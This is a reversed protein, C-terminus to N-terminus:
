PRRRKDDRTTVLPLSPYTDPAGLGNSDGNTSLSLSPEAQFINSKWTLSYGMKTGYMM